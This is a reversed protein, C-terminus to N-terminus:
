FKPFIQSVKRQGMKFRCLRQIINVNNFHVDNFLTTPVATEEDKPFFFRISMKYFDNPNKTEQSATKAVCKEESKFHGTKIERGLGLRKVKM